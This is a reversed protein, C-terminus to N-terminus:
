KFSKHNGHHLYEWQPWTRVIAKVEVLKLFEQFNLLLTKHASINYIYTDASM